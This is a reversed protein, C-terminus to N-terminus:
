GGANENNDTVGAEAKALDLADSMTYGTMKKDYNKNTLVMPYTGYYRGNKSAAAVAAGDKIYIAVNLASVNDLYDRLYNTMPVNEDDKVTSLDTGVNTNLCYDGTTVSSFSNDDSLISNVAEVAEKAMTNAATIKAKKVFGLMAPVLIAALVGIIAIVVILEILTFGRKKM